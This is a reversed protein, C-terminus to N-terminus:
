GLFLRYVPNVTEDCHAYGLRDLFEKFTGMEYAPM